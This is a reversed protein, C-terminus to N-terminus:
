NEMDPRQGQIANKQNSNYGQNGQNNKWCSDNGCNKDLFLNMDIHVIGYQLRVGLLNEYDQMDNLLLQLCHMLGLKASFHRLEVAM